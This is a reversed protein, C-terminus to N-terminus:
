VLAKVPFILAKTLISEINSIEWYPIRLLKIDSNDCYINKIMDNKKVNEFAKENKIPDKSRHIIKYHQEGDYEICIKLYPIYFDFPLRKINKCEDFKYQSEYLINNDLLWNKIRVEGKSMKCMPCGQGQLHKSPSKFFAGHSKCLIKIKDECKTYVSESYDYAYGHITNFRDIIDDIHIKPKNEFGCRTCGYGQLHAHANQIFMGHTKCIISVDYKMTTFSTKSYDYKNNHILNAKEIFSKTTHRESESQCKKCGQGELHKTPKQFFAGHINCTIEIKDKCTTYITNSYGYLNNHVRNAKEIFQNTTLRKSM